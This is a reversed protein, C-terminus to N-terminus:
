SLRLIEGCSLFLAHFGSQAESLETKKWDNPPADGDSDGDTDKFGEEILRNLEEALDGAFTHKDRFEVALQIFWDGSEEDFREKVKIFTNVLPVDTSKVLWHLIGQNGSIFQQWHQTLKELEKEIPNSSM